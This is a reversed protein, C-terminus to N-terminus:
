FYMDDSGGLSVADNPISEKIRDKDKRGCKAFSITIQYFDPYGELHTYLSERRNYVYCYIASFIPIIAYYPYVIILILSAITAKEYKHEENQNGIFVIYAVAVLAAAIFLRVFAGIIGKVVFPLPCALLIILTVNVKIFAAEFRKFKDRKRRNEKIRNNYDLVNNYLYDSDDNYLTIKHEQKAEELLEQDTM